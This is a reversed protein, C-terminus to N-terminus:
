CKGQLNDTAAKKVPESLEKFTIRTDALAIAATFLTAAAISVISTVPRVSM